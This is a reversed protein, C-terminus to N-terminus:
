ANEASTHTGIPKSEQIFNLQAPTNLADNRMEGKRKAANMGHPGKQSIKTKKKGGSMKAMTM